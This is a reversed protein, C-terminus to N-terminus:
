RPARRRNTLLASYIPSNHWLYGCRGCTQRATRATSPGARIRDAGDPSPNLVAHIVGAAECSPRFLLVSQWAYTPLEAPAHDLGVGKLARSIEQSVFKGLKGYGAANRLEEMGIAVVGGGVDVRQSIAAFQNLNPTDM